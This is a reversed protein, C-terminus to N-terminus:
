LKRHSLPGLKHITNCSLVNSMDASAVSLSPLCFLINNFGFFQKIYAISNSIQPNIVLDANALLISLSAGLLFLTCAKLFKNRARTHPGDVLNSRRFYAM